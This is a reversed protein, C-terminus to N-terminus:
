KAAFAQLTMFCRERMCAQLRCFLMGSIDRREGEKLDSIQKHAAYNPWKQADNHTVGGHFSLLCAPLAVIFGLSNNNIISTLVTAQEPTCETAGTPATEWCALIHSMCYLEPM